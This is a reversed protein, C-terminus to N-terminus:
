PHSSTASQALGALAREVRALRASQPVDNAALVERAQMLRASAAKTDSAAQAEGYLLLMEGLVDRPLEVGPARKGTIWPALAAVVDSPHGAHQAIRARTLAVQVAIEANGAALAYRAAADDVVQMAGAPDGQLARVEARRMALALARQPQTGDRDALGQARQSAADANAVDGIQLYARALYEEVAVPPTVSRTPFAPANAYADVMEGIARAADGESLRGAARNVRVQEVTFAFSDHADRRANEAEASLAHAEAHKGRQHLVSALEVRYLSNARTRLWPYKDYIAIAHRYRDEAEALRLQLQLVGALSANLFGVETYDPGFLREFDAIAASTMAAAKDLNGQFRYAGGLEQRAFALRKGEAGAREIVRVSEEAAVVSADPDTLRLMHSEMYLAEGYDESAPAVAALIAKAERTMDLPASSRRDILNTVWAKELLALAYERSHTGFVSAAQEVSKEHMRLAPEPLGLEEYMEGFLKLMAAKAAPAQELGADVNRAGRDLLEVATLERTPKEFNQDVSNASFLDSMFKGTANAVAAEQRAREASEDARQLMVLSVAMATILALVVTSAAAVPWANRQLFRRGRYWRSDPRALVPLRLRHRRLDDAFAEITAYRTAPDKRLAKAIITDLDGSLDARLRSLSTGIAAATEARIHAQSPLVPDIRAIAEELEGRTGRKLKYPRAGTLLEYLVVGLSYVDTATTLPRGGIQEPSAYDLTLATGAIRTLETERAEGEDMLKAIGFDLLKAGGAATVLINSPKLDRHLVLNAHAHSVAELVQEFLRLRQDVDLGRADAYRDIHEGEVYELALFPQGDDGFGADYLRAIHEHALPALLARERAFREALASRSLALVPLKIAVQRAIVGDAREALWVEGMGGTGLRRVLRYAGLRRGEGKAEGAAALAGDALLAPVAQLFLDTRASASRALVERLVSKLWPDAVDLADIRALRADGDVDVIDDLLQSLAQWQVQDLKM